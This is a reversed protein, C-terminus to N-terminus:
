SKSPILTDWIPESIEGAREGQPPEKSFATGYDFERAITNLPIRPAENDFTNDCSNKTKVTHQVSLAGATFAAIAV